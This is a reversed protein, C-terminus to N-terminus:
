ARPVQVDEWLEEFGQKRFEKNVPEYENMKEIIFGNSSLIDLLEHCKEIGSIDKLTSLSIEIRM